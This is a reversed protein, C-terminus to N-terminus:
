KIPPLSSFPTLDKRGTAWVLKAFIYLATIFIAVFEQLAVAM